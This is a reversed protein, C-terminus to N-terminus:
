GGHPRPRLLAFAAFGAIPGDSAHRLGVGRARQSADNVVESIFLTLVVFIASSVHHEGFPFNLPAPLSIESAKPRL